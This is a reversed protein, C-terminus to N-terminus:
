DNDQNLKVEKDKIEKNKLYLAADQCALGDTKSLGKTNWIEKLENMTKTIYLSFMKDYRAQIKGIDRKTKKM